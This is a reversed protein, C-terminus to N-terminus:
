GHGVVLYSYFVALQSLFYTVLTLFGYRRETLFSYGVMGMASLYYALLYPVLLLTSRFDCKLIYDLAVEVSLFV